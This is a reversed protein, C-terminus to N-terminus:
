LSGLRQLADRAAMQQAEKKSRGRGWGMKETNVSVEVSFVKRHDPGEEAHVLYKPHGCGTSQTHELLKSKFNIYDDRRILEDFDNLVFREVFNRGADIGGDLYIVGILAEFADCLISPQKAGGASHEEPSLLVFRGLDINRAKKALVARSVILSKMQTLDGERKDKFRRFLFDAVVLDLVADGLYELRENSEIGHGHLAYVYSRHKLATVLLSLNGFRYDIKEELERLTDPSLGDPITLRYRRGLLFRASIGQSGNPRALLDHALRGISGYGRLYPSPPCRRSVAKAAARLGPPPILRSRLAALWSM